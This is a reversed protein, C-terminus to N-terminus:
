CLNASRGVYLFGNNKNNDMTKFTEEHYYLEEFHATLEKVWLPDHHRFPPTEADIQFVGYPLNKNVVRFENYRKINMDDQSLLFDSIHIIGGPKLLRRIEDVLSLQEHNSVVSSLVGFLLVVDFFHDSFDFPMGKTHTLNLHPFKKKGRELMKSSIDVGISNVYGRQYLASLVRGYGCGIDLISASKDGVFNEFIECNFTTTSERDYAVRNWFKVLFENHKLRTDEETKM